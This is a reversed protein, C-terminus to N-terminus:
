RKALMHPKFTNLRLANGVVSLSSLSMAAAALMPNLLPGGFLHLLGAAIPIGIVNYCFAWFLNQKINRLTAKSVEIATVVAQLDNQVLVVDASDIAIDTGSGVAIGVDAAALAPADNIGDGVMAVTQGQGRLREINAAKEEPLVQALVEKVGALRGIAEATKQNDGTLMVTHLGQRELAAVAAPSSEKLTDAVAFIGQLEGDVVLYMATKGAAALGEVQAAATAANTTLADTSAQQCIGEMAVGQELLLRQNGFAIWHQEVEAQVGQGTVSLFRSAAPIVIQQQQAAQVVAKAIPHESDMELAAAYRLLQQQSLGGLSILDTLEMQGKTLTGTKDFVIAKVKGLLELSRADKFLVGYEAGKGTGVMIATPTALGLACPCAIVLVSVFIQLSFVFSEGALLWGAAALVAIALVVPVFYGAIVDALRAIPAKSGQAEEVLRIIQSLTTEEGIKDAEFRIVGNLNICGATVRDGVTKEVPLSEGTLMSQDVSSEGQRIVGDAPIHGGPRVLLLDGKEVQELPIEMEQGDRIVTATPPTLDLLKQVADGTRGKSRGELFKGLMVLTIITATSEFYLVHYGNHQGQLILYVFAVSYLFSATTGVAILSDMNPRGRFLASFGRTYFTYGIGMVPLTLVLQVLANIKPHLTADLVAPLPLGSGIMPGMAIYLLPVTFVACWILKLKLTRAEAAKREQREERSERVMQFGAKAVARGIGELDIKADDYKVQASETAFNVSASTIGPTENLQKNLNAACSACHMGAIQIKTKNIM